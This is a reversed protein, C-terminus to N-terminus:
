KRKKEDSWKGGSEIPLRGGGCTEGMRIAEGIGGGGDFGDNPQNNRTGKSHRGGLVPAGGMERNTSPRWKPAGFLPVLRRARSGPRRAGRSPEHPAAAGRNPDM